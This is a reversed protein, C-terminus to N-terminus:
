RPRRSASLFERGKETVQVSGDPRKEVLSLAVLRSVEFPLVPKADGAAIRALADIDSQKPTLPM